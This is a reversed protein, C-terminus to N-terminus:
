QLCLLTQVQLQLRMNEMCALALRYTYLQTGRCPGAAVISAPNPYDKANSRLDCVFDGSRKADRSYYSMYNNVDGRIYPDIFIRGTVASLIQASFGFYPNYDFRITAYPDTIGQGGFSKIEACKAQLAPHMISSEWVRFKAMSGDPMPLEIIPAANHNALNKLSPLSWLFNKLKNVDAQVTNYKNPIIARKSNLLSISAENKSTFFSNQAFLTFSLSLLFLVPLLIQYIKKM